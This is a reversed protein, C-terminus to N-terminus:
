STGLRHSKGQSVTGVAVGADRPQTREVFVAHLVADEGDHLNGARRQRLEGFRVGGSIRRPGREGLAGGKPVGQETFRRRDMVVANGAGVQCFLVLAEVAAQHAAIHL